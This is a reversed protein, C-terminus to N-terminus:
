SVKEVKLTSVKPNVHAQMKIINKSRSFSECIGQIAIKIKIPIIM